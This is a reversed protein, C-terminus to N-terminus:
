VPRRSTQRGMRPCMSTSLWAMERIKRRYRDWRQRRRRSKCIRSYSSYWIFTAFLTFLLVTLLMEVRAHLIAVLIIGGLVQQMWFITISLESCMKWPLVLLHRDMALGLVLLLSTVSLVAFVSMFCFSLHHMLPFLWVSPSVGVKVIHSFAHFSQTHSVIHIRVFHMFLLISQILQLSAHKMVNAKMDHKTVAGKLETVLKPMKVTKLNGTGPKPLMKIEYLGM